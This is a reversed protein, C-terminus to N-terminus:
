ISWKIHFIKLDILLQNSRVCKLHNQISDRISKTITNINKLTTTSNRQEHIKETKMEDSTNYVVGEAM